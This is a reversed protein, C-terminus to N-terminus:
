KKKYFLFVGVSYETLPAYHRVTGGQNKVRLGYRLRRPVAQRESSFKPASRKECVAGSRDERVDGTLFECCVDRERFTDARYEKWRQRQIHNYVKQGSKDISFYLFLPM